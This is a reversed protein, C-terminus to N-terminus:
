LRPCGKIASQIDPFPILLDAVYQPLPMLKLWIKTIIGLTGESGVVHIFWIMSLLM